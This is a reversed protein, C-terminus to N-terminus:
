NKSTVYVKEQNITFQYDSSFMLGKLVYELSNSQFRGNWKGQPTEDTQIVFQVGYWRELKKTMVEFPDNKFILLNTKWSAITELDAASKAVQHTEPKLVAKENPNLLLMEQDEQNENSPWPFVAVKGSMVAIEVNNEGPYANINFSTGLVKTVSGQANIIFPKQEDRKVDFFAEGELNVVRQDDVFREPYSVRSDSNLSIVTGDPLTHKTIKQGPLTAKTVWQITPSTAPADAFLDPTPIAERGIFLGLVLSAAVSIGIAIRKMRSSRHQEMMLHRTDSQMVKELISIFEKDSPLHINKPKVSSIIEKASLVTELKDPHNSIWKNWFFSRDETPETVWLVFNEDKLFDDVDFESYDM